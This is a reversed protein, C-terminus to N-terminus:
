LKATAMVYSISTKVQLPHIQLYLVQIQLSVLFITAVSSQSYLINPLSVLSNWNLIHNVPLM